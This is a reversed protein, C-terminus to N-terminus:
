AGHGARPRPLLAPIPVGTRRLAAAEVRPWDIRAADSGAARTVRERLDDPLRAAPRKGTEDLELSAEAEPNAEIFLDGGIRGLKVPEYVVRVPTGVEVLSYLEAMDEPYLRICGRSSHRGM